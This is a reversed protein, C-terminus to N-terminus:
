KINGIQKTLPPQNVFKIFDFTIESKTELSLGTKKHNLAVCTHNIKVLMVITKQAHAIELNLSYLKM